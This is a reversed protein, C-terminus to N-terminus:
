CYVGSRFRSIEMTATVLGESIIGQLPADGVANEAFQALRDHADVLRDLDPAIDRLNNRPDELRKQYTDLADLFGEMVQVGSGDAPMEIPVIGAVSPALSPMVASPTQDGISQPDLMDDFIQRFDSRDQKHVVENSRQDPVKFQPTEDIKM